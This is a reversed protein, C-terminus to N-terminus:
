KKQAPPAAAPKAEDLEVASKARARRSALQQAQAANPFETTVLTCWREAQGAQGLADYADCLLSLATLRDAGRAGGNLAARAALVAGQHDGRSAAAVGRANLDAPSEAEKESVDYKLSEDKAFASKKGSRPASPSGGLSLKPAENAADARSPAQLVPVPKTPPPPPEAAPAAAVPAPAPTPMARPAEPPTSAATSLGFTGHTANGEAAQRVSAGDNLQATRGSNSFDQEFDDALASKSVPKQLKKKSESPRPGDERTAVGNGYGAGSAGRTGLADLDGSSPAVKRLAGQLQASDPAKKDENVLGLRGGPATRDVPAEEVQPGVRQKEQLRAEKQEFREGDRKAELHGAKPQPLADAAAVEAEAPEPPRAPAPAVSVVPAAPAEAKMAVATRALDPKFQEQARFAVVGVTLLGAVSGLSWLWRLRTQRAPAANRRAQQEAYALLSELGADPAPDPPLQKMVSRVSRIESVSQACRPCTALHAEVARAEGLPLEGYAFELLKDEFQHVQASM